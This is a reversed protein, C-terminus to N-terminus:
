AQTKVSVHRHITELLKNRDVPKALYDDCGADLCKRDDGKMAHATLAIIPTQVGAERIKGTAEYGNVNPMQIDMFILDFSSSLVANVAKEGDDVVEVEFGLKELLLKILTKNTESDEAVLVRGTFKEQECSNQQSPFSTAIEDEEILKLKRIYIGAAITLTFVSGKEPESTITIDGGLLQALHKTIALGLGTGGFKRTTSGDAQRFAEFIMEHKDADIGIGSDEIDFRIFPMNEGMVRKEEVSVKVYVHGKQTFKIANDILNTLCQRLRGGDTRIEAPLKGCRIVMFDLGKESAMPRMMSEVVALIRGLSINVPETELKGAEIKTIDLIDNILHLLNGASERIINVHNRQDESLDGEALIESFGIIANMPTRIEHSMNALFEGKVASAKLAEKAMQKALEVTVKLERNIQEAQDKAAKLKDETERLKVLEIKETIDYVLSQNGNIKGHVDKTFTSFVTVYLRRGKWTQLSLENIRINGERLQKLFNVKDKEKVWFREPLFHHGVLEEPSRVELLKMFMPNAYTVVGDLDTTFIGNASRELLKQGEEEEKQLMNKVSRFIDTQTVIGCLGNGDTVALRRVGLKEMMKNTSFISWDQSVSKVPSTMVETVGIKYPDKGQAIIRQLIDRETIIGIVEKGDMVGICSINRSAMIRAADIVTAEVQVTTVNRSMIESVERCMGYFMLVRILDTQTVIGVLRGDEVVPLRKIGNTEAVNGADLVSTDPSVSIVPCSMLDRVKVREFDHRTTITNVFDKETLIGTVKGDSTVIVCSINRDSMRKAAVAVDEDVDVTAVDTSMMDRVEVWTRFSSLYDGSNELIKRRLIDCLREKVKMFQVKDGFFGM